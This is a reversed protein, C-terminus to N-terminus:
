TVTKALSDVVATGLIDSSAIAVYATTLQIQKYQCRLARSPFRREEDIIGGRNWDLESDEWLVDPDGWTMNGRFRIPKLDIGAASDDNISVIQLSLNTDDQAIVNVRPVFKRMYTTGFSWAGSIFDPRLLTTEWSTAAVAVDVKPDTYVTDSHAFLYGRTDARYMTGSVFELATPAFSDNTGSATTFTAKPRVPQPVNLDLVYCGDCDSGDESQVTWWIRRKKSDYSGYIRAQQTATGVWSAWTKDYDENLRIVNYGDTFYIGDQGAWFVGEVTQVVSQSSICNASESIRQAVMGGLGLQDFSGDVRYVSRGRCLLIPSGKVSSLGVIEDDIDVYFDSPVSDIDGPISQLLRNSRTETGLKVDAYYGRDGTVHVLKCPPPSENEPVGSETYLLVGTTQIAADSLNDTTSTTGNTVEKVYYFTQGADITRYIKVKMTATPYNDTVGNALVPISGITVASTNPAACSSVAALTVAGFDEFVVTDVTYTSYYVFAYLYSGTGAAGATVSPTSALAPLGATVAVPSGAVNYIRQPKFYASSAVLLQKHWAAMSVVDSTTATSPFVDNGTPGQVTTWSSAGPKYFKGKSQVLLNGDFYKLAGIRQNGAPIQYCNSNYITSGQRTFPKASGGHTILVLNDGRKYKSPDCDLYYDTVGGSFDRVELPQINIGLSPPTQDNV